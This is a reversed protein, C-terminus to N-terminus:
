VIGDDKQMANSIYKNSKVAFNVGLLGCIINKLLRM